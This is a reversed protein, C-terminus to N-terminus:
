ICDLFDSKDFLTICNARAGTVYKSVYIAAIQDSNKFLIIANEKVINGITEIPVEEEIESSLVFIKKSFLKAVKGLRPNDTILMVDQSPQMAMYNFLAYGSKSMLLVPLHRYEGIIRWISEYKGQKKPLSVDRVTINSKELFEHLWKVIYPGNESMATEESLMVCDAGISVSHALSMVESKSPTDRESMSELNETAMILPKGNVKTEHTIKEVANYLADFGIEAALDGRDIMVADSRLIIELANKLGESNEIKSVIVRNGSVDRLADVVGGSQIFSLGFGDVDLDRVSKIFDQCIKLQLKECYISGPLNVGKKPLLEFSGRSRGVINADNIQVTDFLFQGDNVSFTPLTISSLDPLPKTLTVSVGDFGEVMDGFVVIDGKNIRVSKLNNTRPKAGPVDLLVFADPVLKRIKALASRHWDLSGHSGNLRFLSTHNAFYKISQDNLSVPGLTVLVRAM